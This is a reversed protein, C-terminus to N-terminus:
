RPRVNAIDEHRDATVLRSFRMSQFSERVRGLCMRTSPRRVPQNKSLHYVHSAVCCRGTSGRRNVAIEHRQHGPGPLWRIYGRACARGGRRAPSPCHRDTAPRPPHCAQEDDREARDVQGPPRGCEAAGARDAVQEIGSLQDGVQGDPPRRHHRAPQPWARGPLGWWRHAGQVHEHRHAALGSGHDLPGQTEGDGDVVRVLRVDEVVATDGAPLVPPLDVREGDPEPHGAEGPDVTRRPFGTVEVVRQGAGATARNEGEVRVM